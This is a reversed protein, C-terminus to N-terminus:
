KRLGGRKNLIISVLQSVASVGADDLNELISLFETLSLYVIVLPMIEPPKSTLVMEKDVISGAGVLIIYMLMKSFFMKRMVNSNIIGQRHAEPIGRISSVLDADKQTAELMQHSLSIWKTFLDIVVLLIFLSFLAAHIQVAVAVASVALKLPWHELLHNYGKEFYRSLSDLDM